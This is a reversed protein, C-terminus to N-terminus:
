DSGITEWDNILAKRDLDQPNYDPLYNNLTNGIDLTRAIGNIFSPLGHTFPLYTNLLSSNYKMIKNGEM